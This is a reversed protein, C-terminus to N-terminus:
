SPGVFVYEASTEAAITVSVNFPQLVPEYGAGYLSELSATFWAAGAYGTAPFHVTKNFAGNHNSDAVVCVCVRERM